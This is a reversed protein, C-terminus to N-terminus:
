RQNIKIPSFVMSRNSIVPFKCYEIMRQHDAFGRMTGCEDAQGPLMSVSQVNICAPVFEQVILSGDDKIVALAPCDM